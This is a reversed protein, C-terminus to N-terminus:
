AEDSRVVVLRREHIGQPAQAAVLEHADGPAVQGPERREVLRQAFQGRERVARDASREGERRARERRAIARRARRGALGLFEDDDAHALQAAAFEVEGGVDVEHEEIGLAALGVARAPDRVLLVERAEALRQDPQEIGAGGLSEHEAHVHAQPREALRTRERHVEARELVVQLLM